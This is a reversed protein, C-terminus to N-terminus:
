NHGKYGVKSNCVYKATKSEGLLFFLYLSAQTMLILTELITKVFLEAKVSPSPIDRYEINLYFCSVGIQKVSKTKMEVNCVLIYNSPIKNTDNIRFYKNLTMLLFVVNFLHM